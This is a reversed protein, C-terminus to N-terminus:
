SMASPPKSRSKAVGFFALVGTVAQHFTRSRQGTTGALVSLWPLMASAFLGLNASARSDACSPDFADGEEGSNAWAVCLRRLLEELALLDPKNESSRRPLVVIEPCSEQSAMQWPM